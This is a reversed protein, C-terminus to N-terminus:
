ELGTVTLKMEGKATAVTVSEGIQRGLLMSGVPSKVSVYGELPDAELPDVLTVEHKDGSESDEYTVKTGQEAKVPTSDKTLITANALIEKIKNMDSAILNIEIRKIDLVDQDDRKEQLDRVIHEYRSKLLYLKARLKEIGSITLATSQHRINM